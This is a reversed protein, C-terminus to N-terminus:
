GNIFIWKLQRNQCGPWPQFVVKAPQCTRHIRHTKSQQCDVGIPHFGSVPIRLDISPHADEDYCLANPRMFDAVKRYPAASLNALPLVDKESVMGILCGQEDVVPALSIHFRLFFEAAELVTSDRKLSNVVATMADRARANQMPDSSDISSNDAAVTPESLQSFTVIHNRGKEKAALLCQDAMDLLEQPDKM